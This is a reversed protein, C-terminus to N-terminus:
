CLVPVIHRYHRYVLVFSGHQVTEVLAYPEHSEVHREGRFAVSANRCEFTPHRRECTSCASEVLRHLLEVGVDDEEGCREARQKKRETARLCLTHVLRMKRTREIRVLLQEPECLTAGVGNDAERPAVHVSESVAPVHPQYGVENLSRFAAHCVITPLLRYSHASQLILLPEIHENVAPFPHSFLMGVPMQVYVTHPREVVLQLFLYVLQTQVVIDCEASAGVVYHIDVWFVTQM